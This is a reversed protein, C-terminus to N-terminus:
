SIAPLSAPKSDTLNPGANLIYIFLFIMSCFRVMDNQLYPGAADGDRSIMGPCHAKLDTGYTEDVIYQWRPVGTVGNLTHM